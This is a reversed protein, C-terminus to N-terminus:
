IKIYHASLNVKDVIGAIKGCTLHKLHMDNQLQLQTTLCVFPLFSQAVKNM